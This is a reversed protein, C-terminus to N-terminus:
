FGLRALAAQISKSTAQADSLDIELIEDVVRVLKPSVQQGRQVLLIIPKNLMLTMGLEVAFKVDAPGTPMISINAVSDRLKPVMETLVRQAWAQTDPDSWVDDNSM